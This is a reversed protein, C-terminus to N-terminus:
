SHTRRNLVNPKLSWMMYGHNVNKAYDNRFPAKEPTKCWSYRWKPSRLAADEGLTTHIPQETWARKNSPDCWIYRDSIIGVGLLPGISWNNQWLQIGRKGVTAILPWLIPYIHSQEQTEKQNSYHFLRTHWIMIDLKSFTSMVEVASILSIQFQPIHTWIHPAMSFPGQHCSNNDYWFFSLSAYCRGDKKQYSLSKEFLIQEGASCKRPYIIPTLTVDNKIPIETNQRKPLLSLWM